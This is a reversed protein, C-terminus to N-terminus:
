EGIDIRFNITDLAAEYISFLTDPNLSYYGLSKDFQAKTTSHDKFISQTSSDLADRYLDIRSFTRQFHSELIQVDVLVPILEEKTLIDSPM